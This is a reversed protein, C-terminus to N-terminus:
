KFFGSLIWGIGAFLAFLVASGIGLIAANQLLDSFTFPWDQLLYNGLTAVGFIVPLAAFVIGARVFGRMVRRSPRNDSVLVYVMKELMERSLNPYLSDENADPVYYEDQAGLGREWMKRKLIDGLNDSERDM